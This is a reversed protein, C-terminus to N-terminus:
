VAASTVSDWDPGRPCTVVKISKFSDPTARQPLAATSLEASAAAFKVPQLSLTHSSRQLFRQEALIGRQLLGPECRCLNGLLIVGRQHHNFGSGPTASRTGAAFADIAIEFSVIQIRVALEVTISPAGRTPLV